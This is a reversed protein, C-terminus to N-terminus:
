LPGDTSVLLFYYNTFLLNDNHNTFLSLPFAFYPFVSVFDESNINIDRHALLAPVICTLGIDSAWHIAAYGKQIQFSFSFTM